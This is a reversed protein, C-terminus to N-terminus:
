CSFNHKFASPFSIPSPPLTTAYIFVVVTVTLDEAGAGARLWLSLRGPGRRQTIVDCNWETGKEKLPSRVVADIRMETGIGSTGGLGRVTEAVGHSWAAQGDLSKHFAPHVRKSQMFCHLSRYNSGFFQAM